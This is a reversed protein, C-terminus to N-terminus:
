LWRWWFQFKNRINYKIKFIIKDERKILDPVEQSNKIRYNIKRIKALFEEERNLQKNLAFNYERFAKMTKM